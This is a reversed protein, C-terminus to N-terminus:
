QIDNYLLIDWQDDFEMKEGHYGWMEHSASDKTLRRSAGKTKQSYGGHSVRQYVLM